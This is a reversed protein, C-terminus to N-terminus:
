KADKKRNERWCQWLVKIAILAWCINLAVLPWAKHAFANTVLGVGAILNLLQYLRGIANIKKNSVLGYAMLLVIMGVWGTIEFFM